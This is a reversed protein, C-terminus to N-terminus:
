CTATYRDRFMIDVRRFNNEIHLKLRISAFAQTPFIVVFRTTRSQPLLLITGVMLSTSSHIRTNKTRKWHTQPNIIPFFASTTLRHNILEVRILIRSEIKTKTMFSSDYGITHGTEYTLEHEWNSAEWSRLRVFDIHTDGSVQCRKRNRLPTDLVTTDVVFFSFLRYTRSGCSSPVSISGDRSCCDRRMVINKEAWGQM